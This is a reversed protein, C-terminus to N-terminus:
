INSKPGIIGEKRCWEVLERMGNELEVKPRYGITDKAKKISYERYQTITRLYNRNLEKGRLENLIAFAYALPYPVPRKPAVGLLKIITEYIEKATNAKEDAIVFIQGEAAKKQSLVLAQALNHSNAMHNKNNGDGIMSLKGADIKKILYAFQKSKPGYVPAPRLVTWPTSQQGTVLCEAAYKSRAYETEPNTPTNEDIPFSGVRGYVGVTSTYILRGVGHKQCANLVNETGKVNIANLLEKNNSYDVLGAIHYVVDSGKVAKEVAAADTIDGIKTKRGEVAHRSFVSVDGKLEPVLASGVCGTAGTALIKM